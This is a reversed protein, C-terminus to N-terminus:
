GMGEPPNHFWLNQEVLKESRWGDDTRVLDHHYWGGCASLEDMGPLRMPNFFMAKVQARDGDLDIELNSILHQMMPLFALSTALWEGVEDRDGIPGGVDSYDLTADETFVTKWLDWDQNDVGTAYRTLLERIEIKDALARIDIDAM